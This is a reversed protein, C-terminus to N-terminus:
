PMNTARKIHRPAKDAHESAAKAMTGVSVTVSMSAAWSRRWSDECQCAVDSPIRVIDQNARRDRYNVLPNSRPPLDTVHFCPHPRVKNM